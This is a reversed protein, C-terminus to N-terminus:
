LVETERRSRPIGRKVKGCVRVGGSTNRSSPTFSGSSEKLIRRRNGGSLKRDYGEARIPTTTERM